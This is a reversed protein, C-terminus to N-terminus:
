GIANAENFQCRRAYPVDLVSFPCLCKRVTGFVAPSPSRAVAVAWSIDDVSAPLLCDAVKTIVHKALRLLFADNRRDAITPHNDRFRLLSLVNPTDGIPFYRTDSFANHHHFFYHGCTEGGQGGAAGPGVGVWRGVRVICVFVSMVISDPCYSGCVRSSRVMEFRATTVSLCGVRLLADRRRALTCVMTPPLM